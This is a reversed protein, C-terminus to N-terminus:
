KNREYFFGVLAEQRFQLDYNLIPNYALRTDFRLQVYKWLKVILMNAFDFQLHDRDLGNGFFRTNNIWQVHKGIPKNIATTIGFGYSAFYNMTPASIMTADRFQTATIETPYGSLKLTAFTFNINSTGWFSFVAGYGAELSFPRMIGGVHREVSQGLEADFSWMSQSLFQTNFLISYSHRLRPAESAWLFNLQLRDVSKVWISDLYKLYGLDALLQHTHSKGVGIAGHRYQVNGVFSFNRLDQGQWNTSTSYSSALSTYLFSNNHSRTATTPDPGQGFLAGWYLSACITLYYGSFSCSGRHGDHVM